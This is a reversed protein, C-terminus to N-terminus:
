NKWGSSAAKMSHATVRKLQGVFGARARSVRINREEDVEACRWTV